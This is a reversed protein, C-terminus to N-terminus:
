SSHWNSWVLQSFICKGGAAVTTSTFEDQLHMGEM